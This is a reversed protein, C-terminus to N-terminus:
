EAAVPLEHDGPDIADDAFTGPLETGGEGGTTGEPGGEDLGPTRMPEPLWAADDLTELGIEAAARDNRWRLLTEPFDAARVADSFGEGLTTFVPDPRYRPPLASSSMRKNHPRHYRRVLNDALRTLPKDLARYLAIPLAM